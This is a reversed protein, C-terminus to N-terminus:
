DASASLPRELPENPYRVPASTPENEDDNAGAFLWGELLFVGAAALASVTVATVLAASTRGRPNPRTPVNATLIQRVQPSGFAHLIKVEAVKETTLTYQKFALDRDHELAIRQNQAYGREARLRTLIELSSLYIAPEVMVDAMDTIANDASTESDANMSAITLMATKEAEIAELQIDVSAILNEIDTSTLQSGSTELTALEFNMIPAPLEIGEAFSTSFSANTVAMLLALYNSADIAATGDSLDLQTQLLNLNNKLAIFSSEANVISSFDSATQSDYEDLFRGLIQTRRLSEDTNVQLDFATLADQASLYEAYTEEALEDTEEPSYGSPVYATNAARRYIESWTNTAFAAIDPDSYSTSLRLVDGQQDANIGLVFDERDIEKERMMDAYEAYVVDHVEDLLTQSTALVNLGKWRSDDLYNPIVAESTTFSNDQTQYRSRVTLLALDATSTYTAAGRSRLAFVAIGALLGLAIILPLRKIIQQLYHRLAQSYTAFNASNQSPSSLNM